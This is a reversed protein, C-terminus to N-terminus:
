IHILSLIVRAKSRNKAVKDEYVGMRTEEVADGALEEAHDFVAKACAKVLADVQEQTYPELATLATRAKVLKDELYDKLMEMDAAM